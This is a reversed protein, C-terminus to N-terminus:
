YSDNKVGEEPEGFVLPALRMEKNGSLSYLFRDGKLQNSQFITGTTNVGEAMGGKLM